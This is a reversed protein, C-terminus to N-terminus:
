HAKVYLGMNLLTQKLKVIKGAIDEILNANRLPYVVSDLVKRTEALEKEIPDLAVQRKTKARKIEGIM